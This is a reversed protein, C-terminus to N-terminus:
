SLEVVNSLHPDLQVTTDPGPWLGAALRTSGSGSVSVNTFELQSFQGAITANTAIQQEFWNLTVTAQYRKGNHVTFMGSPVLAAAPGMDLGAPFEVDSALRSARPLSTESALDAIARIMAKMMPVVQNPYSGGNIKRAMFYLSGRTGTGSSLVGANHDLNLYNGKAMSDIRIGAALMVPEAFAVDWQQNTSISAIADLMQGAAPQQQVKQSWASALQILATNKKADADNLIFEILPKYDDRGTTQIIGRGRFKYFDAEMIFGNVNADEVPSYESPWIEGNWSNSVGNRLIRDAPTLTRHASLFHADNFLTFASWNGNAYNYSIKLGPIRDFAYALGPHKATGVKEPNAWLDGSNEQIGISMLACFEIATIQKGYVAPIEDWFGNFREAVANTVKIKGRHCFEPTAALTQNYWGIFGSDSAFLANIDAANALKVAACADVVSQLLDTSGSLTSPREPLAARPAAPAENRRDIPPSIQEAANRM